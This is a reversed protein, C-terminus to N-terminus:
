QSKDLQRAGDKAMDAHRIGKALTTSMKGGVCAVSWNCRKHRQEMRFKM